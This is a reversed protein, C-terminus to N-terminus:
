PRRRLYATIRKVLSRQLGDFRLFRVVHMSRCPCKSHRLTANGSLEPRRKGCLSPEDCVVAGCHSHAVDRAHSALSLVPVRAPTACAYADASGKRPHSLYGFTRETTPERWVSALATGSNASWNIIASTAVHRQGLVGDRWRWELVDVHRASVDHTRGRVCAPTGRPRQDPPLAVISAITRQAASPAVRQASGQQASALSATASVTLSLSM